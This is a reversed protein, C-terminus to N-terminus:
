QVVLNPAMKLFYNTAFVLYSTLGLLTPPVLFRMVNTIISTIASPTFTNFTYYVILFFIFAIYLQRIHTDRFLCPDDKPINQFDRITFGAYVLGTLGFAYKALLYIVDWRLVPMLLISQVAISFSKGAVTKSNFLNLEKPFIFTGVTILAMAVTIGILIYLARPEKPSLVFLFTIAAFIFAIMSQFTGVDETTKVEAMATKMREGMRENYGTLNSMGLTLLSLLSIAPNQGFILSRDGPTFGLPASPSLGFLNFNAEVFPRSFVVVLFAFLFWYSKIFSDKFPQLAVDNSPDCVVRKPTKQVELPPMQLRGYVASGLGIIVVPFLVRIWNGISGNLITDFVGDYSSGNLINDFVTYTFKRVDEPTNYVYLAVVGIFTTVTTFIVEADDLRKRDEPSWKIESHNEAFKGQLTVLTLVMMISSVLSFVMSVMLTGYKFTWEMDKGETKISGDILDKGILLCFVINIAFFLFLGFLEVTKTNILSFSVIFVFIFFAYKIFAKSEEAM